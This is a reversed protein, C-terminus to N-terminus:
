AYSQGSRVLARRLLILYFGVKGTMQGQLSRWVLAGLYRGFHCRWKEVARWGGLLCRVHGWSSLNISQAKVVVV